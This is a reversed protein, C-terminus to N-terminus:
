FIKKAKERMESFNKSDDRKGDNGITARMLNIDYQKDQQTPSLRFNCSKQEAINGVMLRPEYKPKEIKTSSNWKPKQPPLKQLKPKQILQSRPALNLNQLQYVNQMVNPINIGTNLIKNKAHLYVYIFENLDVTVNKSINACKGQKIFYDKTLELLRDDDHLGIIKAGLKNININLISRDKLQTNFINHRMMEISSKQEDQDGFGHIIINQGSKKVKSLDVYFNSLAEENFYKKEEIKAGTFKQLIKDQDNPAYYQVVSGFEQMFKKSDELSNCELHEVLGHIISFNIGKSRCGQEHQANVDDCNVPSSGYIKLKDSNDTNDVYWQLSSNM